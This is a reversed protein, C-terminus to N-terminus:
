SEVIWVPDHRHENRICTSAAASHIDRAVVDGASAAKTPKPCEETQLLLAAGGRHLAQLSKLLALAAHWAALTDWGGCAVFSQQSCTEDLERSM